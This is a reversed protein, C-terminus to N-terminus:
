DDADPIVADAAAGVAKGTLKVTGVAADVVLGAGTAAVGVVAGGVAIVACGGLLSSALAALACARAAGRVPSSTSRSM